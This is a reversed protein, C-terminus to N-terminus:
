GNFQRSLVPRLTVELRQPAGATGVTLSGLKLKLVESMRPSVAYGLYLCGKKGPEVYLQGNSLPHLDDGFRSYPGCLGEKWAITAPAYLKGQGDRVSGSVLLDAAQDPAATLEVSIALARDPTEVDSANETIPLVYGLRTTSSKQARGTAEVVLKTERVRFVAETDFPPIIQAPVVAGEVSLAEAQRIVTIHQPFSCASLSAVVAGVLSAKLHIPWPWAPWKAADTDM